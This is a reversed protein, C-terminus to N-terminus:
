KLKVPRLLKSFTLSGMVWKGNENVYVETVMFPNVVENGGVVAVLDIENLLIATNDIINVDVTYVEAKKYHIGGSKIIEIEKDKGWTGGMHIFMSKEHFLDALKDVDKDAMWQWKDKSLQKIEDVTNQANVNMVTIIFTIVIFITKQM